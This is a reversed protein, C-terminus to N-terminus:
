ITLSLILSLFSLTIIIGRKKYAEKIIKEKKNKEALLHNLRELEKSLSEEKLSTENLDLLQYVPVELLESIHILIDADPVSHGTEWKSVTQRVVHLKVAMKEQSMGKRKRYYKINENIM